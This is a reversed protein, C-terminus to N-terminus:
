LEEMKAIHRKLDIFNPEGKTINTLREYLKPLLKIFVCEPYLYGNYYYTSANLVYVSEFSFTQLYYEVPINIDQSLVYFTKNTKKAINKIINQSALSERPHFKLYITVDNDISEFCESVMDFYVYLYKNSILEVLPDSMFLIRREQKNAIESSLIKLVSQSCIPQPYLRVDFPEHYKPLISYRKNIPLGKIPRYSIYHWKAFRIHYFPLYYLLDLLFIKIKILFTEKIYPRQSYHVSGEEFFNINCGKKSFLFATFRLSTNQFEGLFINNIHNDEIIKNIQKYNKYAKRFDKFRKLRNGEWSSFDAFEIKKKWMDKIEMVEYISIFHSNGPVYSMLLVNDKLKEQAVIQQAILFQFPTFVVFLNNM